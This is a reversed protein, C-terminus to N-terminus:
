LSEHEAGRRAVDDRDLGGPEVAHTAGAEVEVLERALAEDRDVVAGAVVDRALRELREGDRDHVVQEGRQERSTSSRTVPESQFSRSATTPEVICNEIMRQRLACGASGALTM